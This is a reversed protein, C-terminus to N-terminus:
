DVTANAAVISDVVSQWGGGQALRDGMAGTYGPAGLYAFLREPLTTQPYASLANYIDENFASYIDEDIAM